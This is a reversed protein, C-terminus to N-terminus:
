LPHKSQSRPRLIRLVAFGFACCCVWAFWDGLVSYVTKEHGVPVQALLSAFPASDSREEALIRGRDDVVTLYGQKAARVISFGDEVARMVAMHGHSFRDAVFDWAPVLMLGVGARAYQRSLGTFDMDKCIEVGWTGSPEQLLTTSKGPELDSEFPPLMHHKDYSQVAVNPAYVRARNYKLPPAVYVMGVVIVAKTRDALSQFLADTKEHDSDVVVALKEPLVIVKTGRRALEEVRAGYAQFLRDAAAGEPVDVFEPEDSATLAVKVREGPSPTSLRVAGYALVIAILGWGAGLVQWARRGSTRRAELAVVLAAPFLLLLFSMGWPGTVSAIQLFTLFNLQSYALNGGTGHPSILSTLYEFSVWAAPFAILASWWAGRRLLGRFLLVAIAFLLAPAGYIVLQVGTPMHLVSDFYHRLNLGGLFWATFAVVASSKWSARAAFLLAPAPAIWMLPWWPFLGGGFYVLAASSLVALWAYFVLKGKSEFAM